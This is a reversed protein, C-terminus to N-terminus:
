EELGLKQALASPEDPLELLLKGEEPTVLKRLIRLLRESGTYNLRAVLETYVDSIVMAVEKPYLHPSKRSQPVVGSRRPNSSEQNIRIGPSLM